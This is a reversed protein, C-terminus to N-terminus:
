FGRIFGWAAKVCTWGEGLCAWLAQNGTSPDCGSGPRAVFVIKAPTRQTKQEVKTVFQCWGRCMPSKPTLLYQRELLSLFMRTVDDRTYFFDASGTPRQAIGLGATPKPNLTPGAACARRACPRPTASPSERGFTVGERRVDLNPSRMGVGGATACDSFLRAGCSVM